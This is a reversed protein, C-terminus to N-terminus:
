ATVSGFETIVLISPDVDGSRSAPIVWGCLVFPHKPRSSKWTWKSWLCTVRAARGGVPGRVPRDLNPGLRATTGSITM